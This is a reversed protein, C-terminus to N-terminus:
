LDLKLKEERVVAMIMNQLDQNAQVIRPETAGGKESLEKQAAQIIRTVQMVQGAQDGKGSTKEAIKDNIQNVARTMVAQILSGVLDAMGKIKRGWKEWEEKTPQVWLYRIMKKSAAGLDTFNDNGKLFATYRFLTDYWQRLHRPNAQLPDPPQAIEDIVSIIFESIAKHAKPGPSLARVASIEAWTPMVRPLALKNGTTYSYRYAELMDRAMEPSVSVSFHVWLAIRDRLAETREDTPAFNATCWITPRLNPAIDKRDFVHLCADYLPDSGRPFEDFVIIRNKPDMATHSVVRTFEGDMFNKPNYMGKVETPSTSPDIATFNWQNESSQFAALSPVETKGFGPPSILMAHTNSVLSATLIDLMDDIYRGQYTGPLSPTTKSM